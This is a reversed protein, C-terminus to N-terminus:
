RYFLLVAHWAFDPGYDRRMLRKPQRLGNVQARMALIKDRSPSLVNFPAGQM